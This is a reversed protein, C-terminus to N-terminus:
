DPCGAEDSHDICDYTGNCRRDLTVEQGVQCRYRPLCVTLAPDIQEPIPGCDLRVDARCTASRADCDTEELCRAHLETTHAICAAYSAHQASFDAALADTCGGNLGSSAYRLCQDRLRDSWACACTADTVRSQAAQLRAEYDPSDESSHGCGLAAAGINITLLLLFWLPRM